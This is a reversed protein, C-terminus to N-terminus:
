KRADFIALEYAGTGPAHYTLELRWLSKFDARDVEAEQSGDAPGRAFIYVVRVPLSREKALALHRQLVSWGATSNPHPRGAARRTETWKAIFEPTNRFYRLAGQRAPGLVPQKSCLEPNSFEHDWITIAIFTGDPAVASWQNLVNALPAGADEFAEKFGAM